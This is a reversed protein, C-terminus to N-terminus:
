DKDRPIGAPKGDFKSPHTSFKEEDYAHEFPRQTGDFDVDDPHGHAVFHQGILFSIEEAEEASDVEVVAPSVDVVTGDAKTVTGQIPGTLVLHGGKTRESTETSM